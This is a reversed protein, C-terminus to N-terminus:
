DANIFKFNRQVSESTELPIDERRSEQSRLSLTQLNYYQARSIPDDRQRIKKHKETLGLSHCCAFAKFLIALSAVIGFIVIETYYEQNSIKFEEQDM